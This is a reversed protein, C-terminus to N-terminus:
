GNKERREQVREQLSVVHLQRPNWRNAVSGDYEEVQIRRGESVCSEHVSSRRKPALLSGRGLLGGPQQIQV